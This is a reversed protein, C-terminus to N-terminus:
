SPIKSCGFRVHEPTLWAKGMIDTILDLYAIASAETRIGGSLKIGTNSGSEKITEIITKAAELTAGVAIKGTSTKVFNVGANICLRTAKRVWEQNPYAGSEIIVKLSHDQCAQRIHTVLQSLDQGALFDHYPLVWDIEDAGEALAFAIDTDVAHLKGTPFNVVTAVKVENPLSQRALKVFQPYVCVAAAPGNTITLAQECLTQIKADTDDAGLSTLDLLAALNYSNNVM